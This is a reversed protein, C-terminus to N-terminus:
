ASGEKGLQLERAIEEALEAPPRSDADIILTACERYIPEREALVTAIEESLGAGTLSPRRDASSEDRAIRTMLTEVSAQLWVVPGSAKLDNRTDANLVAGGGSAIVLSDRSLLEQMVERELRRFEPEGDDRFIDAICKGARREVEIDADIFARNLREALAEAVSTKGSGRYGILTIASKPNRIAFQPPPAHM